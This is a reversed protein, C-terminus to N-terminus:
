MGGHGPSSPGTQYHGLARTLPASTRGVIDVRTVDLLRRGAAWAETEGYTLLVAQCCRGAEKRDVAKLSVKWPALSVLAVQPM